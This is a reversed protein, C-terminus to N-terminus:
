AKEEITINVKINYDKGEANFEKRLSYQDKIQNIMTTTRRELEAKVCDMCLYKYKYNVLGIIRQIKHCM